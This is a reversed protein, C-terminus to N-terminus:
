NKVTVALETSPGSARNGAYDEAIVKIVYNGSPLSSTRLLGDRAEGDRVRNTVIYRFRTPTGYASVGSGSAYVYLAGWREAPLRNFEINILPEEFGKVPTGDASLLQYGIRYLGLKRNDGNGDVRDYATVLIVVDGSILLRGDRKETLIEDGLTRNLVLARALASMRSAIEIKEIIPAVTDKFEFFPLALPNAQANWPGLNLHVHNLRNLSGIFDGVKFRTGRRVRVGILKGASDTRAKFKDPDQIRGGASRGVRVHIYSFLGIHIGEAAGEFDWTALPSSVKEDFVNLASEGERGPVDLGSHLHDVAVGGTTGRAEGMVGAIEHWQNQPTLPWPFTSSPNIHSANLLPIEPDPNSATPRDPPQVFPPPSLPESSLPESSVDGLGSKRPVPIVERIKYNQSDAVYLVGQRDIAIGTPGNFRANSEEGDSFGPVSGSYQDKAEEPTIRIIKGSGEDSVLLFGDHTVRIGVPHNLRVEVEPTDSPGAVTSVEGSPKIKRIAHNGTDAVFVNGDKDVTVGSPTDFLASAAPGDSYGPSGGGAVTTVVGDTSVKRISDTYADAVFITGHDDVAVDIPGDFQAEGSPGDKLGAVGNGAITSVKSGDASLKRIRNNSTDAIIINGNRDIAIGSPTNFQARLADGDAFGEISGAITEVKGDTTVRRIQNCQGGDAVIVNGGKDVAIGFPDSFSASLAAGNEVGPSGDGAITTVLGIANRNTPIPKNVILYVIIATATPLVLISVALLIRRM